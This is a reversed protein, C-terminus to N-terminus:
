FRVSIKDMDIRLNDIWQIQWFCGERPQLYWKNDPCKNDNFVKNYLLTRGGHADYGLIDSCDKKNPNTWSRSEIVTGEVYPHKGSVLAANVLEMYRPRAYLEWKGNKPNIYKAKLQNRNEDHYVRVRM